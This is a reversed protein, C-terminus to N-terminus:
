KESAERIAAAVAYLGATIGMVAETLSSIRGGAEDTGPLSHIPTIANALRALEICIKEIQDSTM